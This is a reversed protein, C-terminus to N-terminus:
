GKKGGQRLRPLLVEEYARFKQEYTLRAAAPSTSPMQIIVPTERLFLEPFYRKLYKHSATGNCCVTGIRPFCELLAAIDNPQEQSIHQDLSGPRVGSAVVDWLGVGGRNLLSLREGYPLSPDFGLLTGMINWFANRPHAYYQAQRLSEDGPLSGLVLVSCEPTVSPPFSCKKVAPPPCPTQMGSYRRVEKIGVEQRLLSSLWPHSGVAPALNFREPRTIRTFIVRRIQSKPVTKAGYGDPMNSSWFTVTDGGDKVLVTLHGSERRGIHDTWFIKMFDGPRAKRWDEFNVGAGLRHVLVALGPGNANAWGWPGEGDHQGLRPILALWARESIVPQPQAADWLQLSKLLLLYCASSCFSPTAERLLFVPRRTRPDWRCTKQAMAEMAERNTKYGGGKRFQSLGARLSQYWAAEGPTMAAGRGAPAREAATVAAPWLLGLCCILILANRM